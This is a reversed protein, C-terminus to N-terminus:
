KGLTVQLSIGLRLDPSEDDIGTGIGIGLTAREQLQYLLGIEMVNSEQDKQSEERRFFDLVLVAKDNLKRSYGIVYEMRDDRETSSAISNHIWRVNLHVRDESSAKTIQKTLVFTVDTDLGDSGVGTPAIVQADVAMSPLYRGEALFNYLIGVDIDGSGSRVSEDGIYFPASITLHANEAFGWQINPQLTFRDSTDPSDGTENIASGQIQVKGTDTPATDEVELPLNRELNHIAQAFVNGPWDAAAAVLMAVTVILRRRLAHM